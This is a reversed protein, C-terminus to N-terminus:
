YRRYLDIYTYWFLPIVKNYRKAPLFRLKKIENLIYKNFAVFESQYIQTCDCTGDEKILFGVLFTYKVKSKDFLNLSDNTYLILRRNKEKTNLIKPAIDFFHVRGYTGKAYELNFKFISDCPLIYIQSNVKISQVSIAISILVLLCIKM